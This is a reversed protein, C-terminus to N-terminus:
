VRKEQFIIRRSNFRKSQSIDHIYVYEPSLIATPFFLTKSYISLMAMLKM